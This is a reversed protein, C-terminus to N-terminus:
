RVKGKRNGKRRLKAHRASLHLMHVELDDLTTKTFHMAALESEAVGVRTASRAAHM